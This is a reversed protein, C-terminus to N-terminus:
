KILMTMTKHIYKPNFNNIHSIEVEPIKFMYIKVNRFTLINKVAFKSTSDKM